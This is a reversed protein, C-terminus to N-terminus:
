VFSVLARVNGNFSAQWPEQGRPYLIMPLGNKPRISNLGTIDVRAGPKLQLGYRQLIVPLAVKLQLMALSAGLCYRPGASFPMFEYASPHISLWREPVFKYPDPFVNPIRHTVYPSMVIWTGGPLQHGGMEFPEKSFRATWTGAPFLRMTEKIVCELFGLKDLQGITPSRGDLVQDFEELLRKLISPHQSLLFITWYLAMGNPNYGGRFMTLTNGLLETESFREPHQEHFQIMASLIDDSKLGSAKKRAIIARTVREMSGASRLLRRYPFGPLDYPFLLALPSYLKRTTEELQRGIQEGDLEPDLGLIPDTALWIALQEMERRLDLEQGVHWSAVKRETVRVCAQHYRTIFKRHFFPLLRARQDDHRPGNTFPMGTILRTVSNNNPFSIPSLELDYSYFGAPDRLVQRNYAPDFVMIVPTGHYGFKILDGYKKRLGELTSLPHFALQLLRPLWGFLPVPSPGPITNYPALTTM